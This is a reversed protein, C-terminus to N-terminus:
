DKDSDVESDSNESSSDSLKTESLSKALESDDDGQFKGDSVHINDSSFKTITRLEPDTYIDDEDISSKEDEQLDCDSVHLDDDDISSEENENDSDEENDNDEENDSDEENENDSDEATLWKTNTLKLKNSSKGAFSLSPVIGIQASYKELMQKIENQTVSCSNASKYKDVVESLYVPDLNDDEVFVLCDLEPFLPQQDELLVTDEEKVKKLFKVEDIVEITLSKFKKDEIKEDKIIKNIKVLARKQEQNRKRNFKIEENTSKLLNHYKRKWGNLDVQVQYTWNDRHLNEVVERFEDKKRRQEKIYAVKENIMNICMTEVQRYYELIQRSKDTAILVCFDCFGIKNLYINEIDFNNFYKYQKDKKLCNRILKLVKDKDKDSEMPLRIMEFAKRLPIDIESEDKNRIELMKKAIEINSIGNKKFVYLYQDMTIEDNTFYLSREIINDKLSLLFNNFYNDMDLETQTYNYSMVLVDEYEIVQNRIEDKKIKEPSTFHGEELFEICIKASPIYLDYRYDMDVYQPHILEVDDLFVKEETDEKLYKLYKDVAYLFRAEKSYKLSSQDDQVEYVSTGLKRKFRKDEKVKVRGLEKNIDITRFKNDSNNCDVLIADIANTDLFDKGNIPKTKKKNIIKHVLYKSAIDISFYVKGNKKLIESEHLNRPIFGELIKSRSEYDLKTEKSNKVKSMKSM